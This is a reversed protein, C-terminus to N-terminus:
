RVPAAAAPRFLRLTPRAIALAGAILFLCLNLAGFGSERALAAHFDAPIDGRTAGLAAWRSAERVAPFVFVEANVWIAAALASKAVVWAPPRAGWRLGALIVGSVIALGLGRIPVTLGTELILTRADALFAPGRTQAFRDIAIEGVIVGFFIALGLFHLGRLVPLAVRRLTSITHM